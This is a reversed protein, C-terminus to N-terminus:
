RVVKVPKLYGTHGRSSSVISLWVKGYSHRAKDSRIRNNNNERERERERKRERKIKRDTQKDIM